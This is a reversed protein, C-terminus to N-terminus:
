TGQTTRGSYKTGLGPKHTWRMTEAKGRLGHALAISEQQVVGVVAASVQGLDVRATGTKASPPATTSAQSFVDPLRVNRTLLRFLNEDLEGSRVLQTPPIIVGEQYLETADTPVSGPTRGGVDQHHCM